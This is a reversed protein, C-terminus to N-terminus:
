ICHFSVRPCFSFVIKLLGLFTTVEFRPLYGLFPSTPLSPNERTLRLHHPQGAKLLTTYDVQSLPGVLDNNTSESVVCVRSSTFRLGFDVGLVFDM